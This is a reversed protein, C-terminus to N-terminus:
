PRQQERLSKVLSVRKASTANFYISQGMFTKKKAKYGQRLMAEIFAEEAVYIREGKHTWPTNLWVQIWPRPEVTMSWREVDHKYSYASITERITKTPKLNLSIWEECLSIRGEDMRSIPHANATQQPDILEQLTYMVVGSKTTKPM